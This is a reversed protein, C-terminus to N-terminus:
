LNPYGRSIITCASTHAVSVIGASRGGIDIYETDNIGLLYDVSTKFYKAIAILSQANPASIGMEWANVSARTTGIESALKSQSINERSRLEHLRDYLKYM